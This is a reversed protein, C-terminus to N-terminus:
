KGRPAPRGAELLDHKFLHARGELLRTAAALFEPWSIARARADHNWKGVKVLDTRDRVADIARLGEAADLVPEVSVWTRVGADRALDLARLREAIPPAHPEWHQRMAEDLFCITTGLSWGCRHLQPFLPVVALPNKTLVTVQLLEREAIELAVGLAEAQEATGLPDTAFSFLIERPDGRHAAASAEFRARWNLKPRVTPWDEPRVRLAASAYCYRCAHACCIALNCALPAYELARGRPTYILDDRAAM